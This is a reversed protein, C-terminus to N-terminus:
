IVQLLSAAIFINQSISLTSHNDANDVKGCTKKGAKKRQFMLDFLTSVLLHIKLFKKSKKTEALLCTRTYM